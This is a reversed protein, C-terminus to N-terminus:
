YRPFDYWEAPRRGPCDCGARLSGVLLEPALLTDLVAKNATVRCRHIVQLRHVVQSLTLCFFEPLKSFRARTAM